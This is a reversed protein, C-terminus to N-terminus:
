IMQGRSFYGIIEQKLSRLKEEQVEYVVEMLDNRNWVADMRFHNYYRKSPYLVVQKASLASSCWDTFGSRVSVCYGAYEVAGSVEEMKPYFQTTAEIPYENIGNCNTFVFFGIEKLDLALERWFSIPLQIEGYNSYSQEYPSLIVSRGKMIPAQFISDITIQSIRCPPMKLISSNIDRIDFFHWPWSIIMDPYKEPVFLLTKCIPIIQWAPLAYATGMGLTEVLKSLHEEIIVLPSSFSNCKSLLDFSRYLILVDGTSFNPVVVFKQRTTHKKVLLLLLTRGLVVMFTNYFISIILWFLKGSPPTECKKLFRYLASNRNM